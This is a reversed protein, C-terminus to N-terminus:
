KKTPGWEVLRDDVIYLWVNKFIWEEKVTNGSIVRNIKLAKGWSDSIMESTMGKWIKGEMLKAAMSSGYKEELYSFRSVKTQQVAPQEEQVPEQNRVVAKSEVAPENLVAHRKFIYGENEEYIVHFYTSDMGTVNVVSGSPIILIVATLDDKEGFLRTSAKTTATLRLEQVAPQNKELGQLVDAKSAQANLTCILFLSLFSIFLNKM